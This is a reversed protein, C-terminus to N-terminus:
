IDRIGIHKKMPEITIKCDSKCYHNCHLIIAHHEVTTMYFIWYKKMMYFLCYRNENANIKIEKENKKNYAQPVMFYHVLIQQLM